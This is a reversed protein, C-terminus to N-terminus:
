NRRRGDHQTTLVYSDSPYGAGVFGGSLDVNNGTLQLLGAQGVLLSGSSVINTANVTISSGLPGSEPPFQEFATGATNEVYEPVAPEDIVVISGTNYFTAASHQTTATTTNFAFGPEGLMTGQNTWYLTDRTIFPLLGTGAEFTAGIGNDFIVADINSVSSVIGMNVYIPSPNAALVAPLALSLIAIRLFHKM